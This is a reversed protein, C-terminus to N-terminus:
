VSIDVRQGIYQVEIMPKQQWNIGVRGWDLRSFVQGANLRVDVKGPEVDINLDGRIVRIVPQHEPLLGVNFEDYLQSNMYAIDAIDIGEEIGALLDGEGAIRAIGEFGAKQSLEAMHRSFEMPNRREVDAFCETQDIEVRPLESEVQLQPPDIVLESRPHRVEMSYAPQRIDLGIRGFRQNIRLDM